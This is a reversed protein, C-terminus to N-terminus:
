HERGQPTLDLYEGLVEGSGWIATEEPMETDVGCSVQMGVQQPIFEKCRENQRRGKSSQRNM